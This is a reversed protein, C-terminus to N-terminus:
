SSTEDTLNNRFFDPFVRSLHKATEEETMTIRLLAIYFPEFSRVITKANVYLVTAFSVVVISTLSIFIHEHNELPFYLCFLARGILGLVLATIISCLTSSLLSYIDTKRWIAELM